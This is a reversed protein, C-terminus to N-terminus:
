RLQIISQPHYKIPLLQLLLLILQSRPASSQERTQRDERLLSCDHCLIAPHLSHQYVPILAALLSTIVNRELAAPLERVGDPV